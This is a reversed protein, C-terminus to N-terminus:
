RKQIVNPLFNNMSKTSITQVYLDYSGCLSIGLSALSQMCEINLNVDAYSLKLMEGLEFKKTKYKLEFILLSNHLEKHLLGHRTLIAGHLSCAREIHISCDRHTQVM